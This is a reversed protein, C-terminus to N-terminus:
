DFWPRLYLVGAYAHGYTTASTAPASLQLRELFLFDGIM